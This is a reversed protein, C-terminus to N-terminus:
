LYYVGCLELCPIFQHNEAAQSLSYLCVCKDFSPLVSSCENLPLPLGVTIPKVTLHHPLIKESDSSGYKFACQWRLQNQDFILTNANHKTYKFKYDKKIKNIWVIKQKDLVLLVKGIFYWKIKTQLCEIINHEKKMCFIDIWTKGHLLIYCFRKTLRGVAIAVARHCNNPM